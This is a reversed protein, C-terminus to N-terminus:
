DFRAEEGAAPVQAAAPDILRVAVSDGSAEELRVDRVFRDGSIEIRSFVRRMGADVPALTLAWGQKGVLKGSIEFRHSLGSFEGRLVALLAESVARMGPQSEAQVQQQIRGDAGRMVLRQPTVLLSSAVPERTVWSLGRERMLVFDGRSVLPRSFGALHRSQEFRGRIVPADALRQAVEQLPAAAVAPVSLLVAPFTLAALAGGLWRRRTM